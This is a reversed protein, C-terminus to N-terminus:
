LYRAYVNLRYGDALPRMAPVPRAVGDNQDLLFGHRVNIRQEPLTLAVDNPVQEVPDTLDVLLQLAQAHPDRGVHKGSLDFSGHERGGDFTAARAARTALLM